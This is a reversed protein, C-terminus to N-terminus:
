VNESYNIKQHTALNKGHFYVLVSLFSRFPSFRVFISYFPGFLSFHDLFSCIPCFLVFITWFLGFQVFFISNGCYVLNSLSPGFHDLISWFPIEQGNQDIKSWKLRTQGIQDIKSWKPGTQSFNPRNHVM